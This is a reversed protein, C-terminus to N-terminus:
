RPEGAEDFEFSRVAASRCDSEDAHGLLEAVEEGLVERASGPPSGVVGRFAFTTALETLTDGSPAAGAADLLLRLREILRYDIAEALGVLLEDGPQARALAERVAAAAGAAEADTARTWSLAGTDADVLAVLAPARVAVAGNVRLESRREPALTSRLDLRPEGSRDVLYLEL